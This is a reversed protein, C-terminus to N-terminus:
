AILCFFFYPISSLARHSQMCWCFIKKFLWQGLWRWLPEQVAGVLRSIMSQKDGDSILADVRSKTLHLKEQKKSGDPNCPWSLLVLTPQLYTVVCAEKELEQLDLKGWRILRGNGVSDPQQMGIRPAQFRLSLIKSWSHTHAHTQTHTHTHILYFTLNHIRCPRWGQIKSLKVEASDALSDRRWEYPALPM